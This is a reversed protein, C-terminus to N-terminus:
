LNVGACGSSPIRHTWLLLARFNDTWGGHGAIVKFEHFYDNELIDCIRIGM